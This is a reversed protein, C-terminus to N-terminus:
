RTVMGEQSGAHPPLFTVTIRLTLLVCMMALKSLCSPAQPATFINPSGLQWARQIRQDLTHTEIKDKGEFQQGRESGKRIKQKGTFELISNFQLNSISRNSKRARFLSTPACKPCSGARKNVKLLHNLLLAKYNEDKKGM